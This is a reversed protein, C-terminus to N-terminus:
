GLLRQKASEFEEHSLAGASHLRALSSLAAVIVATRAITGLLGPGGMRRVLMSM